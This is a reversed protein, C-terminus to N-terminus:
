GLPHVPSWPFIQGCPIVLKLPLELLHCHLITSKPGARGPTVLGSPPLLGLAPHITESAAISFPMSSPLRAAASPIVIGDCTPRLTGYNVGKKEKENNNKAPISRIFVAEVYSISEVDILNM